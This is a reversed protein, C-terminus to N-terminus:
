SVVGYLTEGCLNNHTWVAIDDLGNDALIRREVFEKVLKELVLLILERLIIVMRTVAIVRM